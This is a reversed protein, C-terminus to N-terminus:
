LEFRRIRLEQVTAAERPVHLANPVLIAGSTFVPRKGVISFRNADIWGQWTRDEARELLLRLERHAENSRRGPRLSATPPPATPRIKATHWIATSPRKRRSRCSAAEPFSPPRHPPTRPPSPKRCRCPTPRVATM